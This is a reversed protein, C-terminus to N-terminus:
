AAAGVLEARAKDQAQIAERLLKDRGILSGQARVILRKAQELYPQAEPHLGAGALVKITDDTEELARNLLQEAYASPSTWHM